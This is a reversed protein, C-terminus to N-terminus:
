LHCRTSWRFEIISKDITRAPLQSPPKQLWSHQFGRASPAPASVSALRTSSYRYLRLVYLIVLVHCVLCLMCLVISWADDPLSVLYQVVSIGFQSCCLSAIPPGLLSCLFLPKSGCGLPGMVPRLTSEGNNLSGNNKTQSKGSKTTSIHSEWTM